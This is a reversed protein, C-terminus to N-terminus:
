FGDESVHVDFEPCSTCTFAPLRQALENREGLLEQFELARLTGKWNLEPLDEQPAWTGLLDGLQRIANKMASIRRGPIIMEVEVKIVADTVLSISSLPVTRLDYENLDGILNEPKPPWLPPVPHSHSGLLLSAKTILVHRETTSM